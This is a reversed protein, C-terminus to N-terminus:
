KVDKNIPIRLTVQTGKGEESHIDLEAGLLRARREMNTLGRGSDSNAVVGCSPDFGVGNDKM